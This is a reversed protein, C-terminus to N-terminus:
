SVSRTCRSTGRRRLADLRRRVDAADASGLGGDPWDALAARRRRHKRREMTRRWDIACQPDSCAVPPRGRRSGREIPAGCVYCRGAASLIERAMLEHLHTNNM